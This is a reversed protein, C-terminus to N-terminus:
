EEVSHSLAARDLGGPVLHENCIEDRSLGGERALLGINTLVVMIPSSGDAERVFIVAEDEDSFFVDDTTNQDGYLERICGLIELEDATLPRRRNGTM